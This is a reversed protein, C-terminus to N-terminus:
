LLKLQPMGLDLNKGLIKNPGFPHLLIIQPFFLGSSFSAVMNGLFIQFLLVTAKLLRHYM